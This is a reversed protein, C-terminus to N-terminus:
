SSWARGNPFEYEKISKPYMTVNFGPVTPPMYRGSKIVVPVVFYEHLHDVYELVRNGSSVWVGIYDFIALHQTYEYLGVDGAHSITDNM